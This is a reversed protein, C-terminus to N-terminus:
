LESHLSILVLVLLKEIGSLYKKIKTKKIKRSIQEVRHYSDEWEKLLNKEIESNRIKKITKTRNEKKLDNINIIDMDMAYAFIGNTFDEEKIEKIWGSIWNGRRTMEQTQWVVKRIKGFEEIPLNSCYMFDITFNFLVQMSCVSAPLYSQCEAKNILFPKKNIIYGYTRGYLLQRVNYESVEKFEKYRPCKKIRGDVKKWVKITFKLYKKEKTNLKNFEIYKREFPIKLIENLLKKNQLIDAVDDLLIIFMFMFFKTDRLFKQSKKSGTFLNVLGSHRFTRKWTFDDRRGVKEYEETWKQLEKPLNIKKAKKVRNEIEVFTLKGLINTIIPYKKKDAKSINYYSLLSEQKNKKKLIM